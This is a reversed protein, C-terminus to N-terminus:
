KNSHTWVQPKGEPNRRASMRMATDVANTNFPPNALVFDCRGTPDHPDDYCSNVHGGHHIDGERGLVPLNKRMKM